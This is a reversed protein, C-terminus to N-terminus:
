KCKECNWIMTLPRDMILIWNQSQGPRHRQRGRQRERQRERREPQQEQLQRQHRRELHRGIIDDSPPRKIEPLTRSSARLRKWLRRERDMSDRAWRKATSTRHRRRRTPRTTHRAMSCTNSARVTSSQRMDIWETAGYDARGRRHEIAPGEDKHRDHDPWAAHQQHEPRPCSTDVRTNRQSRRTRPSALEIAPESNVKWTTTKSWVRLRWWVWQRTGTSFILSAIANESSWASTWIVCM